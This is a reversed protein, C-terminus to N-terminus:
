ALRVLGESNRNRDPHPSAIIRPISLEAAAEYIVSDTNRHSLNEIMERYRDPNNLGYCDSCVRVQEFYGYRPLSIKYKSCANCFCKGCARCHHIRLLLSFERDCQCCSYAIYDPVWIPPKQPVDMHEKPFKGKDEIEEPKNRYYLTLLEDSNWYKEFVDKLQLHPQLPEGQCHIEINLKSIFEDHDIYQEPYDQPVLSLDNILRKALYKYVRYISLTSRTKLVSQTIKKLGSFPEPLLNFRFVDEGGKVNFGHSKLLDQDNAKLKKCGVINVNKLSLAGERIIFYICESTISTGALNLTTINDNTKNLHIIGDDKVSVCGLLNLTKLNQFKDLKMIGACHINRCESLSLLELGSDYRNQISNRDMRFGERSTMTDPQLYNPDRGTLISLANDNIKECGDLYLEKLNGRNVYPALMGIAHEDVSACFSFNLVQLNELKIMVKPLVASMNFNKHQNRLKYSRWLSQDYAYQCFDKNLLSITYLEKKELYSLIFIILDDPLETIEVRYGISKYVSKHFKRLCQRKKMNKYARKIRNAMINEKEFSAKIGFFQDILKLMENEGSEFKFHSLVETDEKQDISSELDLNSHYRSLKHEKKASLIEDEILGFTLKHM